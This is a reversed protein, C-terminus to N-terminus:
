EKLDGKNYMYREVVIVPCSRVGILLKMRDYLDGTDGDIIAREKLIVKDSSGEAEVGFRRALFIDSFGETEFVKEMFALNHSGPLNNIVKNNSRRFVFPKYFMETSTYVMANDSRADVYKEVNKWACFYNGWGGRFRNIRPLNMGTQVTVLIIFCGVFASYFPKRLRGSVMYAYYCLFIIFPAVFFSEEMVVWDYPGSYVFSRSVAIMLFSFILWLMFLFVREKLAADIAADNNFFRSHKRFFISLIHVIMIFCLLVLLASGFANRPYALNNFICQISEILTRSNHTGLNLPSVPHGTFLKKIYGLLPIQLLFLLGLMPAHYKLEKRRFLVLVAIFLMALYRGNGKALIAYNSAFFILFYYIWLRKKDVTKMKLISVFLLISVLEALQTYVGVESCYALLVWLESSTIYLIAGALAFRLSARKILLFVLCANFAFMLARFIRYLVSNDEFIISLFENTYYLYPRDIVNCGFGVEFLRGPSFFDKAINGLVTLGSVLKPYFGSLMSYEEKDLHFFAFDEWCFPFGWTFFLSWLFAAAFVGMAIYFIKRNIM